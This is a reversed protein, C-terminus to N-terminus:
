LKILHEKIKIILFVNFSEMIGWESYYAGGTIWLCMYMPVYALSVIGFGLSSFSIMFSILIFITM